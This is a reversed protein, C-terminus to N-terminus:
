AVHRELMAAVEAAELRASTKYPYHKWCWWEQSEGKGFAFGAWDDCHCRRAVLVPARRLVPRDVDSV